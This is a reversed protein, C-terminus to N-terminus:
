NREPIVIWFAAVRRGDAQSRVEGDNIEQRTSERPQPETETQSAAERDQDPTPEPDPLTERLPEREAQPVTREIGPVNLESGQFEDQSPQQSLVMVAMIATIVGKVM